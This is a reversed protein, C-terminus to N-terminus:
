SKPKRFEKHCGSCNGMVTKWADPFTEEDTIATEAAAASDALKKFRPEFDTKKEWIVPLAETDEGTKADDPFLTPLIAAKEKIVKLAAQVKALEFPEEGKFMGSVPKVAKGMAKFHEKRDKIVAANQAMVAANQAMVATTGVAIATVVFLVRRMPLIEECRAQSRLRCRSSRRSEPSFAQM